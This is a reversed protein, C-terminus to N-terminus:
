LFVLVLSSMLSLDSSECVLGSLFCSAVTRFNLRSGGFRSLESRVAGLSSASFGVFLLFLLSFQSAVSALASSDVRLLSVVGAYSLRSISSTAASRVPPACRLFGGLFGIGARLCTLLFSWVPPV